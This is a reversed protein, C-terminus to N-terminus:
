LRERVATPLTLLDAVVLGLPLAAAFASDQGGYCPRLQVRATAALSGIAADAAVLHDSSAVTATVLMGFQVLGAGSAEEAATREAQAIALRQRASAKTATEAAHQATSLDGEVISAARGPDIPRYILTVRKRLVDRHPSVLRALVHSQVLGRPAVAMEWTRSVGSDHVMSDWHAEAARPGVDGWSWTDAPVQDADLWAAPDYAVRVQKCLDAPTCPLCAGAGTAELSRTLNPLRGALDRGVEDASRGAGAFTIAVWASLSSSGAAALQEAVVARAFAPANPDLRGTVEARLQAGSDPAAEVTVTATVLQPEDALTALWGGWRAVWEDVQSADVLAAGDPSSAVVVSWRDRPLALLAFRRGHADQCESLSTSALVGPLQHEGRPIRSLPGSRYLHSGARKTSAWGVRERIRAMISKGYRDRSAFLLSMVAVLAFVIAGGWPGGIMSALVTLVLGGFLALTGATGLGAIGKSQPLRWNGYTRPGATESQAM